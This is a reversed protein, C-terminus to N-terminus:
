RLALRPARAPRRRRSRLSAEPAEGEPAVREAARRRRELEREAHRLDADHLQLVLLEASFQM